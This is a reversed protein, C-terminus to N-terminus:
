RYSFPNFYSKINLKKKIYVAGMINWSSMSIVTAIATGVGGYIPTLIFNLIVNIILATLVLYQYVKQHDTMQLIVGVSGSFSNALQGICLILLVVSGGIFESGFMGLIFKNLLVIAVVLALTLYFNLKTSLHILKKFGQENKHQYYNALKPMLTSNIAQLSFSTLAAIKLAVSYIGVVEDTQYVGLILTDIRGLLLVIAGSIMMPFAEKVFDWSNSITRITIKEFARIAFFLSLISLSVIGYFHAKISDLAENQLIIFLLLFLGALLFRGPSNFFAFLKNERRARLISACLMTIVWFPISLATWFLYPALQPKNYIDVSVFDKSLILVLAISSSFIIAKLLVKFFIGPDANLKELSSYFKVLNTDIGLIGFTSLFLFFSFSLAILGQVSAGYQSTILLTFGYGAFIGGGRIVLFSLGKTLIEGFDKDKIVSKLKDIL